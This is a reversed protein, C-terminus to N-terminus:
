NSWRTRSAKFLSARGTVIESVEVLAALVSVIVSGITPFAIMAQVAEKGCASVNNRMWIGAALSLLNSTVLALGSLLTVGGRYGKFVAKSRFRCWLGVACGSFVCASISFSIIAIAVHGCSLQPPSLSTYLFLISGVVDLMQGFALLILFGALPVKQQLDEAQLSASKSFATAASDRQYLCQEHHKEAEKIPSELEKVRAMSRDVKEKGEDSKKAAEIMDMERAPQYNVTLAVEAQQQAQNQMMIGLHWEDWASAKEKQLNNLVARANDAETQKALYNNADQILDSM